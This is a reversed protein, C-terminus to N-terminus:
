VLEMQLPVINKRWLGGQAPCEPILERFFCAEDSRNKEVPWHGRPTVERYM